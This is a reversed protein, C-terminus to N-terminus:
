FWMREIGAARRCAALQGRHMYWHDAAYQLCHRYTGFTDAHGQPIHQSANDLDAESLNDLIALSQERMQHCTALVESFSPYHSSDMSVTDGDFLELWEALPHARGLMFQQVVLGEIYALHGLTWLTHGGGNPTPAVMGHQAMDEIRALVHKRSNHLNIRILDISQM